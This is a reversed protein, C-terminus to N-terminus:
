RRPPTYVVQQGHRATLTFGGDPSTEVKIKRPVELTGGGPLQIFRITRAATERIREIPHNEKRPKPIHRPFEDAHPVSSMAERRLREELPNAEKIPAEQARSVTKTVDQTMEHADSRPPSPDKPNENRLLGMLWRMLGLGIGVLFALLILGAAILGAAEIMGGVKGWFPTSSDEFATQLDLDQPLDTPLPLNFNPEDWEWMGYQRSRVYTRPFIRNGCSVIYRLKGDEDRLVLTGARVWDSQFAKGNWNDVWIDRPLRSVSLGMNAMDEVSLPGSMIPFEDLDNDLPVAVSRPLEVPTAASAATPIILAFFAVLIVIIKNM